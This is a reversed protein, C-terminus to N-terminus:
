RYPRAEHAGLGAAIEDLLQQYPVWAISIARKEASEPAKGDCGEIVDFITGPEFVRCVYPREDFSLSCGTPKLMTCEGGWAGHYLRHEFDKIAPRVFYANKLPRRPRPRPDGIWHDLTYLGSALADRLRPRMVRTYPAGFDSPHCFGPMRKCCAGKCEACLAPKENNGIVPLKKM